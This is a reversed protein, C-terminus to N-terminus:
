FGNESMAGASAAFEIPPFFNPDGFFAALAKHRSAVHIEMTVYGPKCLDLAPSPDSDTFKITTVDKELANKKLLDNAVDRGAKELDPSQCKLKSLTAARVGARAANMAALYDHFVLSFDALGLMLVLLVPMVFAMEVM